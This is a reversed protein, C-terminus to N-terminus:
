RSGYAPKGAQMALLERSPHRFVQPAPNCKCNAGTCPHWGHFPDSDRKAQERQLKAIEDALTVCQTATLGKFGVRKVPLKEAMDRWDDIALLAETPDTFYSQEQARVRDRGNDALRTTPYEIATGTSKVCIVYKDPEIRSRRVTLEDHKTM